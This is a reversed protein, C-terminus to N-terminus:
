VATEQSSGGAIEAPPAGQRNDGTPKVDQDLGLSASAVELNGVIHIAGSVDRMNEVGASQVLQGLKDIASCLFRIRHDRVGLAVEAKNTAVRASLVPDSAARKKWRQATKESVGYKACIDAPTENPARFAIDTLLQSVQDKSLQKRPAPKKPKRKNTTRSTDSLKDEKSM